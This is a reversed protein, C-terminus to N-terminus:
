SNPQTNAGAAFLCGNDKRFPIPVRFSRVMVVPTNLIRLKTAVPGRIVSPGEGQGDAMTVDECPPPTSVRAYPDIHTSKLDTEVARM